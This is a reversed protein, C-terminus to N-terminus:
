VGKEIKGEIKSIRESLNIIKEQMDKVISRIEKVDKELHTLDNKMIKVFCVASTILILLNIGFNLLIITNM